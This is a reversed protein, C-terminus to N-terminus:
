KVEISGSGVLVPLHMLRSDKFDVKQFSLAARGALTAKFRVSVLTGNGNVGTVNGLRSLGVIIRGKQKDVKHLFATKKGDKKLFDGESVKVVQLLHPDYLLYFPAGFLNKAERVQITLSVEQGVKVKAQEPLISLSATPKAEEGNGIIPLLALIATVIVTAPRM